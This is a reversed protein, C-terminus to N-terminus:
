RTKKRKNKFREKQKTRREQFTLERQLKSYNLLRSETLVGAQIAAKVACDNETEHRCDNFRCNKALDVIDQFTADLENEEFM